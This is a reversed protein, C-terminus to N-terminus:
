VWGSPCALYSTTALLLYELDIIPLIYSTPLYVGTARGLTTIMNKSGILIQGRSSGETGPLTENLWLQIATKSTAYSHSDPQNLQLSFPVSIAADSHDPERCNISELHFGNGTGPISSSEMMSIKKRLKVNEEHLYREKRNLEQIEDILIQDKKGRIRNLSMELQQELHHLDKLSLASLDEGM